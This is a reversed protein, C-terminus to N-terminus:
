YDDDDSDLEVIKMQRHTAAEAAPPGRREQLVELIREGREKHTRPDWIEDDELVAEEIEGEEQEVVLGPTQMVDVESEDDSVEEVIMMKRGTSSRENDIGWDGELVTIEMASEGEFDVYKAKAEDVLKLAETNTPQLRM